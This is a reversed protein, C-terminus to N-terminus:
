LLKDDTYMIEYGEVIWNKSPCGSTRGLYLRQGSKSCETGSKKCTKPVSKNNPKIM